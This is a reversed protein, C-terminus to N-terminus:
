FASFLNFFNKVTILMSRIRTTISRYKKAQERNARLLIKFTTSLKVKVLGFGRGKKVQEKLSHRISKLRVFRNILAQKRKTIAHM